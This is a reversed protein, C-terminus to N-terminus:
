RRRRHRATPAPAPEPNGVPGGAMHAQLFEAIADAPVVVRRDIRAVRLRGSAILERTKTAGLRLEQAAEPVTLMPM